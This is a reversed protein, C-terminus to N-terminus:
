AERFLKNFQGNEPKYYIGTCTGIPDEIRLTGCKNCELIERGNGVIYYETEQFGDMVSDREKFAEGCIYDNDSLINGCICAVKGM